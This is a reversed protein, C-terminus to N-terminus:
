YCDISHFAKLVALFNIYLNKEKIIPLYKMSNIINEVDEQNQLSFFQKTKNVDSDKKLNKYLIKGTMLDIASELAIERITSGKINIIDKNNEVYFIIQAPSSFALCKGLLNIDLKKDCNFFKIQQNFDVIMFFPLIDEKKYILSQCKLILIDLFEECDDTQLIKSKQSILLEESLSNIEPLNLMYIFDAIYASYYFPELLHSYM